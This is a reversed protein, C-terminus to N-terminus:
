LTTRPQWRPMTNRFVYHLWLQFANAKRHKKTAKGSVFHNSCVLNVYSLDLRNSPNIVALWKNRKQQTKVAVSSNAKSRVNVKPISFFGLKSKRGEKSPCNEV